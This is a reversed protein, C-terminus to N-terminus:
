FIYNVDSLKCRTDIQKFPSNKKIVRHVVHRKRPKAYSNLLENRKAEMDNSYLFNNSFGAIECAKKVSKGSLVLGKIIKYRRLKEAKYLPEPM